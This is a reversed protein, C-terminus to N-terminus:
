GEDAALIAALEDDTYEQGIILHKAARESLTLMFPSTHENDQAGLVLALAKAPDPYLGVLKNSQADDLGDFIATIM